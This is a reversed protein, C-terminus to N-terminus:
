VRYQNLVQSLKDTVGQIEQCILDLEDASGSVSHSIGEMNKVNETIVSSTKTQEDTATAIQQNLTSISAVKATIDTLSQGAKESESFTAAANKQGKSMAEVVKSAGGQLKELVKRIEETSDQTGSALTRVEDAVVAFGRGQEGARAAEIAANLALLNTQEAISSITSLIVEANNIYTELENVMEASENTDQVLVEVSSVTSKVVDSGMQASQNALSAESSANSANEAITLVSDTLNQIAHSVSDMTNAQSKVLETTKSSTQSLSSSVQKLSVVTDRTSTISSHMKSIFENFWYVLDAVEDKGAYNIRQTLDGEGEAISHLSHTVQNISQVISRIVFLTLLILIVVTLVGLIIGLLISDKATKITNDVTQNFDNNSSIVIDELQQNLSNLIEASKKARQPLTAFDADGNILSLAIDFALAQYEDLEKELDPVVNKYKPATAELQNLNDKLLNLQEEAQPLQEEDGTSVASQLLQDVNKLHNKANTVSSLAPFFEDRIQEVSIQADQQVLSQNALFTIFGIVAVASLISIKHKIKLKSAISIAM